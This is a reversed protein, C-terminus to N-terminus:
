KLILGALLEPSVPETKEKGLRIRRHVYGNLADLYFTLLKEPTEDKTAGEEKAKALIQNVIDLIHTKGDTATFFALSDADAYVVHILHVVLDPYENIKAFYESLLKIGEAGGASKLAEYNIRYPEIKKNTEIFEPIYAYLDETKKFYHYFLGHSCGVEKAIDDIVVESLGKKSILEIGKATIKAKRKDRIIQNQKPTRPM